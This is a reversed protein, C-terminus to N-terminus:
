PAHADAMHARKSMKGTMRARAVPQTHKPRAPPRVRKLLGECQLGKRVVNSSKSTREAKATMTSLTFHCCLNHGEPVLKVSCHLRSKIVLRPEVQLSLRDNVIQMCEIYTRLMWVQTKRPVNQERHSWEM